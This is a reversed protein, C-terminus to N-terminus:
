ASSPMRSRTRDRPSPSTYLLCNMNSVCGAGAGTCANCAENVTKLGVRSLAGAIEFLRGAYLRLFLSDKEEVSLDPDLELQKLIDVAEELDVINAIDPAVRLFTNFENEGPLEPDALCAMLGLLGDDGAPCSTNGALM